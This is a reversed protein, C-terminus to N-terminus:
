TAASERAGAQPDSETATEGSGTEPLGRRVQTVYAALLDRTQERSFCHPDCRLSLTLRGGYATIAAGARTLPRLPPSGLINELLLNGIVLRNDEQRPFRVSFRRTPDGVNTLVATAFCREGTMAMQMGRPIAAL